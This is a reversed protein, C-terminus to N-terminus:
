KPFKSGCRLTEYVKSKIIYSFVTNVDVVLSDMVVVGVRLWGRADHHTGRGGGCASDCDVLQTACQTWSCATSGVDGLWRPQPNVGHGRM